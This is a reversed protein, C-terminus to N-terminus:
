IKKYWKFTKKETIFERINDEWLVVMLILLCVAYYHLFYELLIIAYFTFKYM